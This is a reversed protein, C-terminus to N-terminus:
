LKHGHVDPAAGPSGSRATTPCPSSIAAGGGVEAGLLMRLAAAEARLEDREKRLEGIVQMMWKRSELLMRLGSGSVQTIGADGISRQVCARARSRAQRAAVRVLDPKCDLRGVTRGEADLARLECHARGVAPICTTAIRAALEGLDTEEAVDFVCGAERHSRTAHVRILPGPNRAERMEILWETVRAM